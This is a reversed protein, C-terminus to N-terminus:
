AAAAAVAPSPALLDLLAAAADAAGTIDLAEAPPRRGAVLGACTTATM